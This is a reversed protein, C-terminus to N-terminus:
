ARQELHTLWDGGDILPWSEACRRDMEYALASCPRWAGDHEVWALARTRRYVGSRQPWVQELDDLAPEIVPEIWHLEGWVWAPGGLVMGPYPGLDHLRGQVRAPGILRSHPGFRRIDNSGGLRLTGYVFLRQASAKLCCAPGLVRRPFM